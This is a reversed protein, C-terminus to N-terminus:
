VVVCKDVADVVRSDINPDTLTKLDPRTNAPLPEGLDEEEPEWEDQPPKQPPQPTRWDGQPSKYDVQQWRSGGYSGRDYRNWSIIPCKVDPRARLRCM